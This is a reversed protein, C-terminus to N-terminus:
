SRKEITSNNETNDSVLGDNDTDNSLFYADLETQDLINDNDADNFQIWCLRSNGSCQSPKSASISPYNAATKEPNIGGPTGTTYTAYRVAFKPSEKKASTYASFGIALALAFLGVLYQKM